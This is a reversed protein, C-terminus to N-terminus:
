QVNENNAGETNNPLPNKPMVDAPFVPDCFTLTCVIYDNKLAKYGFINTLNAM